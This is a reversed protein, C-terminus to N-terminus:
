LNVALSTIENGCNNKRDKSMYIYGKDGWTDSWSNKVIWYNKSSTTDVKEVKLSKKGHYHDTKATKKLIMHDMDSNPPNGSGYGVVLVGHDLRTSSCLWEYYIGHSYLQFSRHSADIAVSVPGATKVANALDTESGPTISKYSSITAGVNTKNFKCVSGTNATYPYSQETDIGHNSIIYDFANNMLGGNCGMNGEASSCDVLNQESLEVMNGTKIQHAGEVSGTTSFSWCSGCQGQDKIPSVAGKKRWDVTAGSDEFVTSLQTNIHTGQVNFHIHKVRTGLYFKKYEEPSHDALHNLELVTDSNKANWSHVYDMNSKFTHYKKLFENNSYLRQFKHTWDTFVQKYEEEKFLSGNVITLLGIFARESM